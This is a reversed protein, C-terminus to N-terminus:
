FNVREQEIVYPRHQVYTHISGIYEGLIGLAILQVSSFLFTGIIMPAEGLAFSSWFLLKYVFYFLAVLLCVGSSFFGLFIVMRLPIKSFNTIGLMAFDYLVYVSSKSKGNKREQQHYPILKHPLGIEALMGRFYPYPDNFSKIINIVSKDYLGFGTVNEFTKVSSIKRVLRYYYKRISFIHKNEASSEKEALVMKYGNEWDGIFDAIMEPPDQLDACIGIVADGSAQFLSYIGSRVFGFNRSNVIIRVNKDKSAITKLISVTNDESHNDIFIHEYRYRGVKKMVSRVREYIENVNNEENYCATVISIKKM